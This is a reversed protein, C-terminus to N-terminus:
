KMWRARMKLRHRLRYVAIAIGVMFLIGSLVAIYQDSTEM